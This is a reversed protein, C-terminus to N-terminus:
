RGYSRGSANRSTTRPHSSTAEPIHASPRRRPGPDLHKVALPDRV